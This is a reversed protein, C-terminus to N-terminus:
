KIWIYYKILLIYHWIPTYTFLPTLSANKLCSPAIFSKARCVNLCSYVELTRHYCMYWSIILPDHFLIFLELQQKLCAKNTFHEDEIIHQGNIFVHLCTFVELSSMLTHNIIPDGKVIGPSSYASHTFPCLKSYLPQSFSTENCIWPGILIGKAYRRSWRKNFQLTQTLM